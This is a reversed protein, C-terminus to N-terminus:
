ANRDKLKTYKKTTLVSEYAPRIIKNMNLMEEMRHASWGVIRAIAFLPTYLEEPLGLMKYVFGSYFDVNASVGKYINREQAIVQPALREIKKYFDYENHLGKEDALEKVYSKLVEARPDSVSYIAHGMGYILGQKDFAEKNLIKRLYESIEAEDCPDDLNAWIDDLMKSVQINAGGHKAGKLSSLSAVVSAYTDTGSSTVVHTTFTSNNGGGHEMHLILALDLVKAEIDTFQKDPRLLRLINQATTLNEDPYHIYLSEGNEYHNYAQYAYIALLPFNAILCLSQDLVNELTMESAKRDFTALSLISRSISNMIDSSTAELIIDRVFDEPLQRKDSLVKTFTTLEELTPLEGFLLLYTIEEFGFRNEAKLHKSIDKINIARYELIGQMPEGDEDFSHIASINTLGALIGKGSVDRLGKKVDYEQYFELPIISNKKIKEIYKNM